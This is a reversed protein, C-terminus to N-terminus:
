RIGVQRRAMMAMTLEILVMSSAAPQSAAREDSEDGAVGVVTWAGAVGGPGAAWAGVTVWGAGDAACAGGGADPCAEGVAAWGTVVPWLGPFGPAAAAGPATAAGGTACAAGAAWLPLGYSVTM